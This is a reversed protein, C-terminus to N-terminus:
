QNDSNLRRSQKNFYKPEHTNAYKNIYKPKPAHRTSSVWESTQYTSKQQQKAFPAGKESVM